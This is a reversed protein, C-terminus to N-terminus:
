DMGDQGKLYVAPFYERLLQRDWWVGEAREESGAFTYDYFQARVYKPPQDPFPNRALLLPDNYADSVETVRVREYAYNTFFRTFGTGIPMGFTLVGGTSKQTFQGIYRVDRKFLNIGGTVNRDFLFPETFALTYDQARQGGQLSVTLSEGRGLFNATQFL